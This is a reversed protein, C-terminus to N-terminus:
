GETQGFTDDNPAEKQASSAQDKVWSAFDANKTLLYALYKEILGVRGETALIEAELENFKMGIAESLGELHQMIESVAEQSQAESPKGLVEDFNVTNTSSVTSDQSM